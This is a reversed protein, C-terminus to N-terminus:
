STAGNIQPHSIALGSVGWKALVAAYQGNAIIAKLAALVAPALGSGKPIAIGHVANAYSQGVLKFQGSSQKVQYAAVPTDAFGLEARGSSLALNAGNQDNFQLVTVAPKGAKTCAASQTQADAVETTGKEVAVTKGCIDAISSIDTGGSAKTFFSEGAQFYDVFDVVKERDKTDNHSSIALDYKGAALGPIISDFTANVMQVKIGMARGLAAALDADFGVITHGDPGVFEDPAYTPDTAATLVGKQRLAAPVLKAVAPNGAGVAAASSATTAASGSSSATGGAGGCAALVLTLAIAALGAALARSRDIM